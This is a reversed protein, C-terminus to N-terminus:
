VESSSVYGCSGDHEDSVVERNYSEVGNKRYVESEELWDAEEEEGLGGDQGGDGM